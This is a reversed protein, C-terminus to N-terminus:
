LGGSSQSASGDSWQYSGLMNYRILIRVSFIIISYWFVLGFRPNQNKLDSLLM